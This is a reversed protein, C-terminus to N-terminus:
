ARRRLVRVLEIDRVEEVGQLNRYRVALKGDLDGTGAEVDADYEGRGVKIVLADGPKPDIPGDDVVTEQVVKAGVERPPKAESKSAAKEADKAAKAAAKEQAKQDKAAQREQERKTKADKKAQENAVAADAKKGLAESVSAAAHGPNDFLLRTGNSDQAIKYGDFHGAVLFSVLRADHGQAFNRMTTAGGCEPRFEADKDEPDLLLFSACLCAHPQPKAKPEKAPKEAPATEVVGGENLDVALGTETDSM